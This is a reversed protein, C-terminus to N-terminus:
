SEIPGDYVWKSSRASLSFQRYYTEKGKPLILVVKVVNKYKRKLSPLIEKVASICGKATKEAKKNFVLGFKESTGDLKELRLGGYFKTWLKKQFNSFEEATISNADIGLKEFCKDFWNNYDITPKKNITAVIM